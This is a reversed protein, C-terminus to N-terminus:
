QEQKNNESKKWFRELDVSSNNIGALPRVVIDGEPSWAISHSRIRAEEVYNGTAKRGGGVVSNTALRAKIELYVLVSVLVISVISALVLLVTMATMIM